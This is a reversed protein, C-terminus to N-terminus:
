IHILSLTLDMDFLRADAAAEARLLRNHGLYVGCEDCPFGALRGLHDIGALFALDCARRPMLHFHMHAHAGILVADDARDVYVGQRKYVDLHTYSVPAIQAILSGREDERYEGACRQRLGDVAKEQHLLHLRRACIGRKQEAESDGGAKGNRERGDYLALGTGCARVGQRFGALAERLIDGHDAKTFGNRQEHQDEAHYRQASGMDETLSNGIM